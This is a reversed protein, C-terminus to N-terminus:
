WCFFDLRSKTVGDEWTYLSGTSEINKNTWVDELHLENLMEKLKSRSKDNLHTKTSRDNYNLCCNLDGGIIVNSESIAYKCIWSKLSKFYIGREAVENPAYLNVLTFLKGQINFNVLLTRGDKMDYSSVVEIKSKPSILIGVGRSYVSSTPAFYSEGKWSKKFQIINNQTCHTEQLFSIHANQVKLWEYLKRRKSNDVIGRVNLSICTVNVKNTM